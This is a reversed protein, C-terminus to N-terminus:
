NDVGDEEEIEEDGQEEFVVIDDIFVGTSVEELLDETQFREPFGM